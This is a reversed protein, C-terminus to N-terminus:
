MGTVLSEVGFLTDQGLASGLRQAVDFMEAMQDNNDFIGLLMANNAQTMLDISNVTGDTANRLKDLTEEAGGIGSSLNKFGLEVSKLQSSVEITQTIGNILGKSAYFAGAVKLARNALNGLGKDVDSLGSKTKDVGKLGLKLILNKIAM